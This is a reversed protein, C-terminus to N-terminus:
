YDDIRKCKYAKSGLEALLFIHNLRDINHAQDIRRQGLM